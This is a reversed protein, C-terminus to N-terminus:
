QSQNWVTCDSPLRCHNERNMHERVDFECEFKEECCCCLGFHLRRRIYNVSKVQQYFNLKAGSPSIRLVFNHNVQLLDLLIVTLHIEATSFTAHLM